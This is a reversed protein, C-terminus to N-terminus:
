SLYRLLGPLLIEVLFFSDRDNVVFESSRVWLSSAGQHMSHNLWSYELSSSSIMYHILSARKIETGDFILHGLSETKLRNFLATNAKFTTDPLITRAYWCPTDFAWMLIERHMVSAANLKLALRDWEDPLEWRQELVDLRADGAAKYLKQTLSKEYVLWPLLHPSPPATNSTLM